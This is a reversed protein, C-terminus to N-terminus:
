SLLTAIDLADSEARDMLSQWREVISDMVHGEEEDDSAEGYQEQLSDMVSDKESYNHHRQYGGIYVNAGWFCMGEEIFSEVFSLSPNLESLRLILGEAPGWATQYSVTASSVDDSVDM